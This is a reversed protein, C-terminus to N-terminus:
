VGKNLIAIDSRAKAALEPSINKRILLRDLMQPVDEHVRSLPEYTDESSPLGKWRVQVLLGSPSNQLGMLRAVIM